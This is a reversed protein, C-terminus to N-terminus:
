DAKRTIKRIATVDSCLGAAHSTIIVFSATTAASQLAARSSLLLNSGM